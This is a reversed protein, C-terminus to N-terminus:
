GCWHMKGMTNWHTWVDPPVAPLVGWAPDDGIGADQCQRDVSVAGNRLFAKRGVEGDDFPSNWLTLQCTFLIHWGSPSPPSVSAATSWYVLCFINITTPISILNCGLLIMWFFFKAPTRVSVLYNCSNSPLLTGGRPIIFLLLCINDAFLAACTAIIVFEWVNLPSQSNIFLCRKM